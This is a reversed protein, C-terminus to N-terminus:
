DKKGEKARKDEKGQWGKEIKQRNVYSPPPRFKLSIMSFYPHYPHLDKAVKKCIWNSIYLIYKCIKVKSKSQVSGKLELKVLWFM